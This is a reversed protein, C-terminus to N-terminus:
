LRVVCIPPMEDKKTQGIAELEMTALGITHVIIHLIDWLVYSVIDIFQSYGARKRGTTTEREIQKSNNNIIMMGRLRCLTGGKGVM